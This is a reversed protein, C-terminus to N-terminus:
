RASAESQPTVSPTQNPPHEGRLLLLSSIRPVAGDSCILTAIVVRYTLM